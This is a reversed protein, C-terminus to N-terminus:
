VSGLSARPRALDAFTRRVDQLLVPKVLVASFGSERMRNLEDPFAHATYAILVVDRTRPSSQFTRALQEGGVGPMRIDILMAEPLREEVARALNTADPFTRVHWGLIELYAAALDRGGESDDVVYVLGKRPARSENKQPDMQRKWDM